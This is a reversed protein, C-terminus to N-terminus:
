FIAASKGGIKPSDQEENVYEASATTTVTEEKENGLDPKVTQAKVTTDARHVPDKSHSKNSLSIAKAAMKPSSRTLKNSDKVQPIKHDRTNTTPATYKDQSHEVVGPKNGNEVHDQILDGEIALDSRM